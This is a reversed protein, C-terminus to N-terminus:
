EYCTSRIAYIKHYLENMEQILSNIKGDRSKENTYVINTIFGDKTMTNRFSVFSGNNYFDLEKLARNAIEDRISGMYEKNNCCISKQIYETQNDVFDNILKKLKDYTNQNHQISCRLMKESYVSSNKLLLDILNTMFPFLFKNIRGCRDQIEFEESFYDLIPESAKAIHAILNEDYYSECDASKCSLYCAQYLTPIERARLQYLMEIENHEIALSIMQRRLSDNGALTYKLTDRELPMRSQWGNDSCSVHWLIRDREQPSRREISTGPEFDSFYNGKEDSVFWFYKNEMLYKLFEFNKCQLAYDIVTKGYEDSNLILKDERNVYQEWLNRDKSFAVQYNTLHTSEPEFCEGASLIEECSVGLLKTFIPLDYIQITKAGKKIQSIRNAMKRIEDDNAVIGNSEIYAKCFQRKSSYKKDILESIYEGIKRKEEVTFMEDWREVVMKYRGTRFLYGKNTYAFHMYLEVTIQM